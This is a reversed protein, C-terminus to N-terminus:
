DPVHAITCYQVLSDLVLLQLLLDDHHPFTFTKAEFDLRALAGTLSSGESGRRRRRRGKSGSVKPGGRSM